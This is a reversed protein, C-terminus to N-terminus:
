INIIIFKIKFYLFYWWNLLKQPLFTIQILVPDRSFNHNYFLKAYGAVTIGHIGSLSHVKSCSM